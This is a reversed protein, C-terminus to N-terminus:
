RWGGGLFPNRPASLARLPTALPETAMNTGGPLWCFPLSVLPLRPKLRTACNGSGLRAALLCASSAATQAERARKKLPGSM